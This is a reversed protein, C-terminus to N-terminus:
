IRGGQVLAETVARAFRLDQPTSYRSCIAGLSQWAYRNEPDLLIASQISQKATESDGLRDSIISTEQHAGPFWPYLRLLEIFQFKRKHLQEKDVTDADKELATFKAQLEEACTQLYVEYFNFGGNDKADKETQETGTAAEAQAIVPDKGEDGSAQFFGEDIIRNIDADSLNSNGVMDKIHKVLAEKPLSETRMLTPEFNKICGSPFAFVVPLSVWDDLWSSTVTHPTKGAAGSVARM